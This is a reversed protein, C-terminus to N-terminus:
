FFPLFGSPKATILPAIAVSSAIWGTGGATGTATKTGSAGATTLALSATSAFQYDSWADQLEVFGAPPTYSATSSSGSSWTCLLLCNPLTTTLSPATQSSQGATTSSAFTPGVNVPTTTDQGTIAAMIWVGSTNVDSGFTYTSGEAGGATRTFVKSVGVGAVTSTSGAQTWGSPPTLNAPDADPDTNVWCILLDGAITGAPKTVVATTASDTTAVTSSRVTVAM